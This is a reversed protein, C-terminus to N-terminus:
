AGASEKLGLRRRLEANESELRKITEAMSRMAIRSTEDMDNTNLNELLLVSSSRAGDESCELYQSLIKLNAGRPKSKGKRYNAITEDSIGTDQSIKYNSIDSNILKNLVEDLYNADM